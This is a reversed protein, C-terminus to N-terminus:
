IKRSFLFIIHFYFPFLISIIHFYYPFLISIIHFCYPFLISIIHFYYPFLISIFHSVYPARASVSWFDATQLGGSQKPWLRGSHGQLTGSEFLDEALPMNFDYRLWIELNGPFWITEMNLGYKFIFWSKPSYYPLPCSYALHCALTQRLARSSIRWHDRQYWIQGSGPVVQVVVIFLKCAETSKRCACNITATMTLIGM